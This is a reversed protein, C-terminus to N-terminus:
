RKGEIQLDSSPGNGKDADVGFRWALRHRPSKSPDLKFHSISPDNDGEKIQFHRRIIVRLHKLKEAPEKGQKEAVEITWTSTKPM